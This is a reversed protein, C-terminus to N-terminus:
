DKKNEHKAKMHRSMTHKPFFQHCHICEYRPKPKRLSLKPKSKSVGELVWDKGPDLEFYEYKGTHLNRYSKKNKTYHREGSTKEIKRRKKEEDHMPNNIVYPNTGREKRTRHCKEIVEKRSFNNPKNKQSESRYKFAEERCKSIFKTNKESHLDIMFRRAYIMSKIHKESILIKPLLFHCILHARSTIRRINNKSNNGGCSRPIIHHSEGGIDVSYKELINFYWKTYKNDKFITQYNM